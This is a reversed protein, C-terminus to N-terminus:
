MRKRSIHNKEREFVPSVKTVSFKRAVQHAQHLIRCRPSELDTEWGAVVPKPEHLLHGAEPVFNIKNLKKLIVKNIKYISIYRVTLKLICSRTVFSECLFFVRFM